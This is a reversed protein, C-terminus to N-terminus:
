SQSARQRDTQRNSHRYAQRFTQRDTERDGEREGVRGGGEWRGRGCEGDERGRQTHTDRLLNQTPTKDKM